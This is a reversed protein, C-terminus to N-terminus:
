PLFRQLRAVDDRGVHAVLVLLRVKAGAARQAQDAAVGAVRRAGTVVEVRPTRRHAVGRVLPEARGQRREADGSRAIGGHEVAAAARVAVAKHSLNIIGEPRRAISRQPRPEVHADPELVGDVALEVAPAEVEVPVAGIGGVVVRQPCEGPDRESGESLLYPTVSLSELRLKRCKAPALPPAISPM